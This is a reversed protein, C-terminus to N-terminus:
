SRERRKSTTKTREKEQSINKEEQTERKAREKQRTTPLPQTGNTVRGDGHHHPRRNYDRRERRKGGKAEMQRM